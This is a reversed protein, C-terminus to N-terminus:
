RRTVATRKYNSVRLRDKKMPLNSVNCLQKYKTTLQTIRYQSSGILERNDAEKALIQVDKQRRIETELRRQLQAGEYMTLHKGEFEFGKENREKIKDLEENSYQPESVGLIITFITHYCNLESIPRRDKGNHVPEFTLGNYSKATIGNQLKDFEENSFQRGQLDAHDEAPNEHVTIEIGDSNFEKGIIKQTENHLMRIGDQINMTIASDLRRTRGSRYDITKIGSEGLSKLISYMQHQFTDKGQSVSLIAQDIVKQYADSINYFRVSGDLEKITFGLASTNSLNMYTGQTLNTLADVQQKLATMQNFPVYKIGRYKYFKEAFQYDQKAYANFITDIEEINTKTIKSLREIITQYSAGYKIMQQLQYAQTPSLKGIEKVAKGIEKLIFTNGNEIREILRTIIVEEQLENRM